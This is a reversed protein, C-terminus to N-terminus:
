GHAIWGCVFMLMGFAIVLGWIVLQEWVTLATRAPVPQYGGPTWDYPERTM